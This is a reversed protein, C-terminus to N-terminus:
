RAGRSSSAGWPLEVGLSVGVWTNAIPVTRGLDEFGMSTFFYRRFELAARARVGARSPWISTSVAAFLSPTAEGFSGGSPPRSSGDQAQAEASGFLAHIGVGGRVEIAPALRFVPGGELGIDWATLDAPSISFGGPASDFTTTWRGAVGQVFLYRWEAGFKAVFGSTSGDGVGNLLGGALEAFGLRDGRAPWSISSGVPELGRALLWSVAHSSDAFDRAFQNSADDIARLAAQAASEPASSLVDSRGISRVEDVDGTGPASVRARVEVSVSRGVLAGSADVRVGIVAIELDATGGEPASRFMKAVADEWAARVHDGLPTMCSGDEARFCASAVEPRFMLKASLPYLPAAAANAVVCISAVAANFFMRVHNM